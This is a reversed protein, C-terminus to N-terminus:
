KAHAAIVSLRINSAIRQAVTDAILQRNVHSGQMTRVANRRVYYEIASSALEIANAVAAFNANGTVNNM